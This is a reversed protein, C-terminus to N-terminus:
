EACTANPIGPININNAVKNKQFPRNLNICIFCNEIELNVISDLTVNVWYGKDPMIYNLNGNWFDLYGDDNMDTHFSGIGQGIVFHINDQQDGLIYELSNDEPLGIFSILNNGDTLPLNVDITIHEIITDFGLFELCEDDSEFQSKYCNYYIDYPLAGITRGIDEFDGNTNHENIEFYKVLRTAASTPDNQFTEHRTQNAYNYIENMLENRIDKNDLIELFLDKFQICANQGSLTNIIKCLEEHEKIARPLYIIDDWLLFDENEIFTKNDFNYHRNKVLKTILKVIKDYNVISKIDKDSTPKKDEYDVELSFKVKQKKEKEFDYYGLKLDLTLYM